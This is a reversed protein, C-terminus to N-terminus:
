PRWRSILFAPTVKRIERVDDVKYVRLAKIAVRESNYIGEWVDGSGGSAVPFESTRILNEPIIHSAPLLGTQGCLKRFKKFIKM